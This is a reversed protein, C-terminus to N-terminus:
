LGGAQKVFNNWLEQLYDIEDTMPVLEGKKREMMETKRSEIKRKELTTWKENNLPAFWRDHRFSRENIGTSTNSPTINLFPNVVCIKKKSSSQNVNKKNNIFAKELSVTTTIKTTTTTTTASRVSSKKEVQLFCYNKSTYLIELNKKLNILSNLM